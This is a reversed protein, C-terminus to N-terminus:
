DELDATSTVPKVENEYVKGGKWNSLPIAKFAGPTQADQDPLRTATKIATEKQTAAQTKFVRWLMEGEVEVRELVVYETGTATPEPSPATAESAKRRSRRPKPEVPAEPAAEQTAM